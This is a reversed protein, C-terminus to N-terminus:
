IITLCIMCSSRDFRASYGEQGQARERALKGAGCLVNKKCRPTLSLNKLFIYRFKNKFQIFYVRTFQPGTWFIGHLNLGRLFYRTFRPGLRVATRIDLTYLVIRSVPTYGLATNRSNARRYFKLLEM